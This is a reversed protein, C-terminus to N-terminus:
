MEEDFVIIVDESLDNEFSISYPDETKTVTVNRGKWVTVTTEAEKTVTKEMESLKISAM